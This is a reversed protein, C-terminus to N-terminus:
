RAVVGEFTPRDLANVKKWHEKDSALIMKKYDIEGDYPIIAIVEVIRRAEFNFNMDVSLKGVCIVYKEKFEGPIKGPFIYFVWGWNGMSFISRDYNRYTFLRFWDHIKKDKPVYYLYKDIRNLNVVIKGHNKYDSPDNVLENRPNIFLDEPNGELGQFTGPRLANIEALIKVKEQSNMSRVKEEAQPKDFSLYVIRASSIVFFVGALLGVYKLCSRLGVAIHWGTESPHGLDAALMKLSLEERKLVIKSYVFSVFLSLAYVYCFDFIWSVMTFLRSPTGANAIMASGIVLFAASNILILGTTDRVFFLLLVAGALCVLFEARRPIPSLPCQYCAM